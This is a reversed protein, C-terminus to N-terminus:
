VRGVFTRINQIERRARTLVLFRARREVPTEQRLFGRGMVRRHRVVPNLDWLFQEDIQRYGRFPPVTDLHVFAIGEFRGGLAMRQRSTSGVEQLAAVVQPMTLAVTPWGGSPAAEEFLRGLFRSDQRNLGTLTEV